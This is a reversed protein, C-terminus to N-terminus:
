DEKLIDNLIADLESDATPDAKAEPIDDVTWLKDEANDSLTDLLGTLEMASLESGTPQAGNEANAADEVPLERGELAYISQMLEKTTAYEEPVSATEGAEKDMGAVISESFSRCLDAAYKAVANIRKNLGALEAKRDELLKDSEEYIAAAKEQASRIIADARLNADDIALKMREKQLAAEENAAAIIGAAKERAEELVRASSNQAETLAGIIAKERNKYTQLENYLEDASDMKASLENELWEVRAKLENVQKSM